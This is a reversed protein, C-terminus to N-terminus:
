SEQEKRVERIRRILDTTSIGPVFDLFRIEGGYSQVVHAEPIPKGDPPAYDSGKTHIDPRLRMLAREPTLEPFIIVYDVCELAALLEAREAEPLIPREPGKLRRVSEDSNLGIVLADGLRRAAQLSRAHGVHILDFCGNTWVVKQGKAHCRERASLLADWDVIKSSTPQATM